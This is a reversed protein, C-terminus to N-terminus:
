VSCPPLVEQIGLRLKTHLFTSLIQVRHYCGRTNFPHLVSQTRSLNVFTFSLPFGLIDELFSFWLLGSWVSQLYWVYIISNILNIENYLVNHNTQIFNTLFILFEVCDNQNNNESVSLFIQNINALYFRNCWSNM